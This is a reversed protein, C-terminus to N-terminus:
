CTLYRRRYTVASETVDVFGGRIENRASFNVIVFVVSQPRFKFVDGIWRMIQDHCNIIFIAALCRHGLICTAGVVIASNQRFRIDTKRKISPIHIILLNWILKWVCKTMSFIDNKLSLEATIGVMEDCIASCVGPIVRCCPIGICNRSWSRCDWNPFIDGNIFIGSYGLHANIVAWCDGNRWVLNKGHSSIKFRFICLTDDDLIASLQNMCNIANLRCDLLRNRCEGSVIVSPIQNWVRKCAASRNNRDVIHEAVLVIQIIIFLRRLFPLILLFLRVVERGQLRPLPIEVGVVGWNIHRKGASNFVAVGRHRHRQAVGVAKLQRAEVEDSVRKYMVDSGVAHGVHLIAAESDVLGPCVEDHASHRIGIRQTGGLSEDHFGSCWACWHCEAWRRFRIGVVTARYIQFYHLVVLHNVTKHHHFIGRRQFLNRQFALMCLNVGLIVAAFISYHREFALFLRHAELRCLHRHVSHIHFDVVHLQWVQM